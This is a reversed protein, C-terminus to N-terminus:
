RDRTAADRAAQAAAEEAKAHRLRARLADAEERAADAEMEAADARERLEASAAETRDVRRCAREIERELERAERAAARLRADAAEREARIEAPDRQPKKKAPAPKEEAARKPSRGARAPVDVVPGLGIGAAGAERELRGATVAERVADDAASAQLTERVRDLTAPSLPTGSEDASAAALRTLESVATRLHESAERLVARDGEGAILREQARRMNAGAALLEQVASRHGRVARNVAAAAASPRRLAKVAAGEDSRGAAKLERALADRAATFEGAPLGYLADAEAPVSPM